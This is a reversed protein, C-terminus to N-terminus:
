QNITGYGGCELCIDVGDGSDDQLNWTVVVGTGNCPLCTVNM